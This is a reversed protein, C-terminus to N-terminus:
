PVRGDIAPLLEGASHRLFRELRADAPATDFGTPTYLAVLAGADGRGALMALAEAIKTRYDNNFDAGAFRYWHWVMFRAASGAAHVASRRLAVDVVDKVPLNPYSRRQWVRDTRDVLDNNDNILEARERQHAYWVALVGVHDDGNAYRAHVVADPNQFGLPWPVRGDDVRTWDGLKAPLVPAVSAVEASRARLLPQAATALGVAIVSVVVAAAVAVSRTSANVADNVAPPQGDDVPEHWFSGIWFMLLMVLGFFIWGYILHDVGVALKMNSLHGILVILVARVGNAVIPLAISLIVFAFRRGLSRYNLYAYLLGLTVSAILYRVGSCAKVVSWNGTPLEFMLGDRFVPIGFLRLAGVTFDATYEMLPSVLGEGVPVALLLFALPFLIRRGLAMGGATLVLLPLLAVAAYQEVVNVGVLRAAIWATLTLLLAILAPWYPALALQALAVRERWVLWVSIPVILYGHAYTGSSDWTAIIDAWTSWTLVAVAIIGVALALWASRRASIGADAPISFSM